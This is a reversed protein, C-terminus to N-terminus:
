FNFAGVLERKMRLTRLHQKAEELKEEERNVHQRNAQDQWHNKDEKLLFALAFIFPDGPREEILGSLKKLYMGLEDVKELCSREKDKKDELADRIDQVKTEAIEIEEPSPLLSNMLLDLGPGFAERINKAVEVNM